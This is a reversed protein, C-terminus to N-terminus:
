IKTVQFMSTMPINSEQQIVQITKINSDRLTYITRIDDEFMVINCKKCSKLYDLKFKCTDMNIDPKFIIDSILIKSNYESIKELIVQKDDPLIQVRGTIIYIEYDEINCIIDIMYPCIVINKIAGPGNGINLYAIVGDLDM